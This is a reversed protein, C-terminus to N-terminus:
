CPKIFKIKSSSTYNTHFGLGTKDRFLKQNRLLYDLTKSSKEFKDLIKAREKLRKIEHKYNQCVKCDLDIEINNELRSMKDEFM